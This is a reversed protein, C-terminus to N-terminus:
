SRDARGRRRDGGSAIPDPPGAGGAAASTRGRPGKALKRAQREEDASPSRSDYFVGAQGPVQTGHLSIIREPGFREMLEILMLNEPLIARGRKGGDKSADVATGGGAATADALDESPPPFNRNTPTAGERSQRAANDPFLTPVVITTFGPPASSAQLDSILRRAVEIGQQESGHVGAIVLARRDTAGRFFTVEVPRTVTKGAVKTGATQGLKGGRIRQALWLDDPRGALLRTLEADIDADGQASQVDTQALRALLAEVTPEATWADKVSGSLPSRQVHVPAATPSVPAGCSSALRLSAQNGLARVGGGAAPDVRRISRPPVPARGQEVPRHRAVVSPPM